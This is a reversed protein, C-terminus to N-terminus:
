LDYLGISHPVDSGDGWIWQVRRAGAALLAAEEQPNVYVIRIRRPSRKASEALGRAVTEFVEGRFPNFFFATTLDDPIPVDRADANLLQVDRCRLSARAAALNAEAAAHLVPAVEIGVVRRFPRRAAELVVRGKGSGFDVFVDDESIPIHKFIRKLGRWPSPFYAVSLEGLGLEEVSVPRSTEVGGREYLVRAILEKLRASSV